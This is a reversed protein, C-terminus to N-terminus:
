FDSDSDPGHAWRHIFKAREQQENKNLHDVQIAQMSEAIHNLLDNLDDIGKVTSEELLHISQYPSSAYIAESLITRTRDSVRLAGSFLSMSSSDLITLQALLKRNQETAEELLQQELNSLSINSGNGLNGLGFSRLISLLEDQASEYKEGNSAGINTSTTSSSGRRLTPARNRRAPSSPTNASPLNTFSSSLRRTPSRGKPTTTPPKVIPQVSEALEELLPKTVATFLTFAISQAALNNLIRELKLL